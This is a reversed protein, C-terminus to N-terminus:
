WKAMLWFAPMPHSGASSRRLCNAIRDVAPPMRSGSPVGMARPRCMPWKSNVLRTRSAALSIRSSFANGKAMNQVSGQSPRLMPVGPMSSERGYRLSAACTKLRSVRENGVALPTMPIAEQSLPNGAMIIARAPSGSRGATITGPPEVSPTSCPSSVPMIWDIPARNAWPSTVSSYAWSIPHLVQAEGPPPQWNRPVAPVDCTTASARPSAMVWEARHGEPLGAQSSMAFLDARASSSASFRPVVDLCMSVSAANLFAM